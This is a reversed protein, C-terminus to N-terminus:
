NDITKVLIADSSHFSALCSIGLAISLNIDWKQMVSMMLLLLYSFLIDLSWDTIRFCKFYTSFTFELEPVALLDDM